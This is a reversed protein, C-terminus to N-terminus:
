ESHKNTDFHERYLKRYPVIMEPPLWREVIARHEASGVFRQLVANIAEIVREGGANRSCAIYAVFGTTSDGLPVSNIKGQLGLKELFYFTVMPYEISFSIRQFNLQKFISSMSTSLEFTRVKSPNEELLQNIGPNYSRNLTVGLTDLSQNELLTELRVGTDLSIKNSRELQQKRSKLHILTHSPYMVAARSYIVSKERDATKNM